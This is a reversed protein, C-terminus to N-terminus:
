KREKRRKAEERGGDGGKAEERGDNKKRGQRKNERGRSRIEDKPKEGKRGRGSLRRRM